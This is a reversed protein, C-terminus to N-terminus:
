PARAIPVSARTRDWSLRLLAGDGAPEIAITFLEVPEPLTEVELDVRVLDRAEDYMTGWQGTQRNVILTWGDPTPLVWLTYTGAPVAAGGVTLDVPTHFHTAANAGARWVLNWPVVRGFIERGRKAPRGYDVWLEADGLAGRATDRPSLTGLPRAAMAPGAAELDVSPVREVVVQFPTGVGSLWTLRGTADLTMRIPSVTGTPVTLSASLTDGGAPSVSVTGRFGPFPTLLPVTLAGGADRAQRALQEFVASPYGIWLAAGPGSAVRETVASDGLPLVLTASDGEFWITARTEAPGPAGGLNHTILEFRRFTGDANLDATYLAHAPAPSSVVYEGQLRTATRTMRELAVTDRGIRAVFAASEQAALPGGALCSVVVVVPLRM